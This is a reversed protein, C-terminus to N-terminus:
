TRELSSGRFHHTFKIAPSQEPEAVAATSDGEPSWIVSIAAKTTATVDARAAFFSALHYLLSNSSPREQESILIREGLKMGTAARCREKIPASCPLINASNVHPVSNSWFAHSLASSSYLKWTKIQDCFKKHQSFIIVTFYSLTKPTKTHKLNCISTCHYTVSKFCKNTKLGM